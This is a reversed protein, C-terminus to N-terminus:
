LNPSSGTKGKAWRRMYDRYEVDIFWGVFDRSVIPHLKAQLSAAIDGPLQTGQLVLQRLAEAKEASLHSLKKAIEGERERTRHRERYWDVVKWIFEFIIFVLILFEIGLM